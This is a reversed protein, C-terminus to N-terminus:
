DKKVNSYVERNKLLYSAGSVVTLVVTILMLVFIADKYLRETQATWFGFIRIGAERFIIFLLIVFISLVQSVMKHRGGDDAPIVKHQGLAAVRLGTISVERLVIVVVMWAPILKMEVFALFAALVLVKDAIPDMLRGFDSTMNYRKALFGDLLDTLSAIIFIALALVKATVGGCFLFGMFVFTLLIRSITLQNALNM